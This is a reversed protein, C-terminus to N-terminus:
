EVAAQPQAAPTPTAPTNGTAIFPSLSTSVISGDRSALACLWYAGQAFRAPWNFNVVVTSGAADSTTYAPLGPIPQAKQCTNLSPAVPTANLIFEISQLFPSAIEVTVLTGIPGSEPSITIHPSGSATAPPVGRGCVALATLLVVLGVLPPNHRRWCVRAILM